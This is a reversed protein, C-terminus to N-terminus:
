LYPICIFSAWGGTCEGSPDDDMCSDFGWFTGFPPEGCYQECMGNDDGSGPAVWGCWPICLLCRETLPVAARSESTALSLVSIGLVLIARRMLRNRFM